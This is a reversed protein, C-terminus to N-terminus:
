GFVVGSNPIFECIDFNESLSFLPNLYKKKYHGLTLNFTLPCKKGFQNTASEWINCNTSLIQGPAPPWPQGPSLSDEPSSLLGSGM